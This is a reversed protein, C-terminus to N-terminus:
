SQDLVQRLTERMSPDTELFLQLASKTSARDEEEIHLEDLVIEIMRSIACEINSFRESRLKQIAREWKQFADKEERPSTGSTFLLKGTSPKSPAHEKLKRKSSM